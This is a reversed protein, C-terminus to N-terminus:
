TLFECIFFSRHNKFQNFTAISHMHQLDAQAQVLANRPTKGGSWPGTMAPCWRNCADSVSMHPAGSPTYVAPM